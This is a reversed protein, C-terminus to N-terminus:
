CTCFCLVLVLLNQSSAVTFSFLLSQEHVVSCIQTIDRHFLKLQEEVTYKLTDHWLKSSTFLRVRPVAQEERCGAKGGPLVVARHLHQWVSHLSKPVTLGKRQPASPQSLWGTHRSSTFISGKTYVSSGWSGGNCSLTHSTPAPYYQAEERDWEGWEEWPVSKASCDLPLEHQFPSTTSRPIQPDIYSWKGAAILFRTFVSCCCFLGFMKKGKGEREKAKSIGHRWFHIEQGELFWDRRSFVVKPFWATQSSRNCPSMKYTSVTIKWSTSM